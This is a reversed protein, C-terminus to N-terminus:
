ASGDTTLLAFAEMVGVPPVDPEAGAGLTAEVEAGCAAGAILEGGGAVGGGDSAGEVDADAVALMPRSMSALVVTVGAAGSFADLEASVSRGDPLRPECNSR